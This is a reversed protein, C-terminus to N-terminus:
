KMKPILFRYTLYCFFLIASLLIRLNALSIKPKRRKRLFNVPVGVIKFGHILSRALFILGYTEIRGFDVESFVEAKIAKFGSLPDKIGMVRRTILSLIRESVRPLCRREGVVIDAGKDLGSLLEPIDEPSHELDADMTLIVTGSAFKTGMSRCASPGMRRRNRIVKAGRESAIESTEDESNDDVLIIEVEESLVNKIRDILEGVTGGENYAPVIISVKM